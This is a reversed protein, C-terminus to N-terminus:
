TERRFVVDAGFQMVAINDSQSQLTELMFEISRLSRLNQGFYFFQNLLLLSPEVIM